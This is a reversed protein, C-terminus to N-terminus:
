TNSELMGRFNFTFNYLDATQENSVYPQSAQDNVSFVIAIIFPALARQRLLNVPLSACVSALARVRVNSRTPAILFRRKTHSPCMRQM